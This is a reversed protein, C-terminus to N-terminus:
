ESHSANQRVRSTDARIESLAREAERELEETSIGKFAEHIEDLVAFDQDREAELRRLEQFDEVSIIAALPIGDRQVIVRTASRSV